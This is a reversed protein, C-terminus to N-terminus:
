PPGFGFDALVKRGDPSAIFTLFGSADAAQRAGRVVGGVVEPRPADPGKAEDLLVVGSVGRIETRYVIAAAVEGRRAYALVAAVDGGLVLRGSLAQWKGIRELYERAYQGAPVAGPDGVAIMEGPALSDLTAFTIAKGGRPGILVIQNTAIVRRSAPDVLGRAILGDVPKAAAFLVADIPAGGEVQKALDGSAGFSAKIRAGPHAREYAAALEPLVARLSAAAAITVDHGSAKPSAKDCAPLALCALLALTARRNM